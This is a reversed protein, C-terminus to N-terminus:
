EFRSRWLAFYILFGMIVITLELTRGTIGANWTLCATVFTAIMLEFVSLLKLIIGM